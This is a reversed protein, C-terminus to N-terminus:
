LVDVAPIVNTCTAQVVDSANLYEVNMSYTDTSLGTFTHTFYNPSTNPLVVVFNAVEVSGSNYVIYKVKKVVPNMVVSNPLSFEFTFQGTIGTFIIGTPCNLNYVVPCQVTDIYPAIYDPDSPSNPKTNGTPTGPPIPPLVEKLTLPIVVGTNAM